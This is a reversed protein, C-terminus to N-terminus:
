GLKRAADDIDDCLPNTLPAAEWDELTKRVVGAVGKMMTTM